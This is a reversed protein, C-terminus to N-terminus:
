AAGKPPSPHWGPVPAFHDPIWRLPRVALPWRDGLWFRRSYQRALEVDSGHLPYPFSFDAKARFMHGYHVAQNLVQRGGSLWSKCAVEVGVQGWGGHAEDLGGLQWFRGRPLMWCGGGLCMLEPFRDDERIRARSELWYQFQMQPDFAGLDVRDTTRRWVVERAHQTGRCLVCAAPTPGQDSRAGCGQCVWEWAKLKVTVPVSTTDLGIQQADYPEVLALDYGPPFACHADVKMVYRAQTLRAATNVTVRQGVSSAFPLITVRPDRPIPTDTPGPTWGDLCVIVETDIVAHELLDAVTRGTLWEQRAPIIVALDRM